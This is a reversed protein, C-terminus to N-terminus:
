DGRRRWPAFAPLLSWAILVVFYAVEPIQDFHSMALVGSIMLVHAMLGWALSAAIIRLPPKSIRGLWVYAGIGVPLFLVVGTLLGPNYSRAILAAGIHSVANVVVISAMCLAAFVNQSGRWIALAAVLWVLSTNIVFVSTDSMFEQVDSLGLLGSLFENLNPKFAYTRGYIDIWHEEFQHIIYTVLLVLSVARADLRTSKDSFCLAILVLFPAMFTGVKMWNQTLFDHQGLPIWLFAFALVLAVLSRSDNM